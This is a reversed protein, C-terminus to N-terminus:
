GHFSIPTGNIKIQQVAYEKHSLTKLVSFLMQMVASENNSTNRVYVNIGNTSKTVHIRDHDTGTLKRRLIESYYTSGANSQNSTSNTVTTNVSEIIAASAQNFLNSNKTTSIAAAPNTDAITNEQSHLRPYQTSIACNVKHVNQAFPAAINGAHNATVPKTQTNQPATQVGNNQKFVNYMMKEFISRWENTGKAVNLRDANQLLTETGTFKNIPDSM